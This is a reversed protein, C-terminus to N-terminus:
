YGVGTNAKGCPRGNVSGTVSFTWNLSAGAHVPQMTVTCSDAKIRGTLILAGTGTTIQYTGNALDPLERLSLKELSDCESVLGSNNQVCEAMALRIPSVAAILESWRARSIYSQYQPIALAAVVGVISVVIMLEILSFGKFLRMAYDGDILICKGQAPSFFVTEVM